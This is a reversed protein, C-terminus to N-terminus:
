VANKASKIMAEYIGGFRPGGPPKINLKVGRYATDSQIQNQDLKSVLEKLEEFAGMFNTGCDSMMEKPVGRRSTFRTFANLFSDIDLSFAIELHVVSSSLSTGKKHQPLLGLM